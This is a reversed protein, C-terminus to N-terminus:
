GYGSAAPQLLNYECQTTPKEAAVDPDTGILTDLMWLADLYEEFVQIRL